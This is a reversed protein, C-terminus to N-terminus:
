SRRRPLNKLAEIPRRDPSMPKIARRYYAEAEKLNGLSQHIEGAYLAALGSAPDIRLAEDLEGLSRHAFSSHLAFRARALEARYDGNGPDCDCAFELQQIAERPNGAAALAVGKRYQVDPDLLDTKITFDPAPRAVAEERLTRRRGTLIGRLEPDALEGYSRALGLFVDRAKEAIPALEQGVFRSPAFREALELYREEIARPTADEAVELMDYADKRRYSLYAQMVENSLRAHDAPAVAPREAEVIAAAPRSSAPRGVPPAAAPEEPLDAVEDATAVVGLVTLAYLLRSMENPDLRTALALEDM